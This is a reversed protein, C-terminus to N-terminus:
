VNKQRIILHSFALTMAPSMLSAVFKTLQDFSYPNVLLDLEFFIASSFWSVCSFFIIWLSKKSLFTRKRNNFREIYNDEKSFVVTFSILEFVIAFFWCVPWPVITKGVLQTAEYVLHAGFFANMGVACLYLVARFNDSSALQRTIHTKQDRSTESAPSNKITGEEKKEAVKPPKSKFEEEIEALEIISTLDDDTTTEGQLERLLSFAKQQSAGKLTKTYSEVLSIIDKDNTAIWGNSIMKRRVNSINQDLRKAIENLQNM